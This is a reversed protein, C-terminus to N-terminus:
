STLATTFDVTPFTRLHSDPNAQIVELGHELFVPQLVDMQKSLDSFYTEDPHEHPTFDCGLLFVKRIGLHWLIRLAAIMSSRVGGNPTEPENPGYATTGWAAYPTLFFRDPDINTTHHYFHVNGYDRPTKIPADVDSRPCPMGACEQPVFKQVDINEWIWRGFYQPPDGAVWLDPTFMRSYNNIACTLFGHGRVQGLRHHSASWGRGVLFCGKAAAAKRRDIIWNVPDDHASRILDEDTGYLIRGARPMKPAGAPPPSTVAATPTRPATPRVARRRGPADKSPKRKPKVKPKRKPEGFDTQFCYPM